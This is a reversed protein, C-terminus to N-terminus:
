IDHGWLDEMVVRELRAGMWMGQENSKYYM